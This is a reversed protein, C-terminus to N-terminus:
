ATANGCGVATQRSIASRGLAGKPMKGFDLLRSARDNLEAFFRRGGVEASRSFTAGKPPTKGFGLLRSAWANLLFRWM